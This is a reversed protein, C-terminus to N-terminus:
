NSAFPNLKSFIEFFLNSNPLLNTSQSAFVIVEGDDSIDPMISAANGVAGNASQSILSRQNTQRDYIFLDVQIDNGQNEYDVNFGVYRGDGSIARGGSGNNIPNGQDDVSIIENTGQAVDFVYIQEEGFTNEPIINNARSLYSIFNGDASIAPEDTYDSVGGGGIAESVLTPTDTARNYLYINSNTGAGAVLQTNSRFTVFNGDGSISPEIGDGPTGGEDRSVLDLAGNAVEVVYIRNTNPLTLGLPDGQSAYAVFRGDASISPDEKCGDYQQGTSTLSIRRTTGDQRDHLFIDEGDCSADNTDNPVLNRAVSQFTVFRGDGSIDPSGSEFDAQQGSSSVSVREITRTQRDFVFIDEANNTDNPVLNTSHSQFAVFRGDASTAPHRAGFPDDDGPNEQAPPGTRGTGGDGTVGADSMSIRLLVPVVNIPPSNVTDFGPSDASLNTLGFGDPDLTVSAFTVSGNGATNQANGGSILGIPSSGLTVGSVTEESPLGFASYAQLSVSFAQGGVVEQPVQTFLFFPAGPNPFSATPPAADIRLGPIVVTVNSTLQVVRDFYGVVNGGADLGTVRVLYTGAGLTFSADGARGTTESQLLSGDTNFVEVQIQTVTAPVSGSGPDLSITAIFSGGTGAGTVVFNNDSGCGAMVFLLGILLARFILRRM